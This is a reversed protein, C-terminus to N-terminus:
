KKTYWDCIQIEDDDLRFVVRSLEEKVQYSAQGIQIKTGPYVPGSVKVEGKRLRIETKAGSLSGIRKAEVGDVATISAALIVGKRGSVMVRQGANVYSQVISEKVIVDRVARLNASEIFNTVVDGGSEIEGKGKGIIGRASVDGGAIISAGEIYGKIYVAGGARISFGEKVDGEVRVTGAFNINGTGFDVNGKVLYIPEVDIKGKSFIVQGDVSAKLSLGDQSVTTNKGGPLVLDRGVKARIRKGRVTRGNRGPTLPHKIALIQDAKVSEILGLEKFDVRGNEDVKPGIQKERKVKWEIAADQGAVPLIGEAVLIPKNFLRRELIRLLMDEKLGFFIQNEKLEDKLLSTEPFKVRREPSLITLYAKMEDNSVWVQIQPLRYKRRRQSIM